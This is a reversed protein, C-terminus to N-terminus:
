TPARALGSCPTPASALRVGSARNLQKARAAVRENAQREGESGSWTARVLPGVIPTEGSQWTADRGTLKISPM